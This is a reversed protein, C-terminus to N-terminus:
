ITKYKVLFKWLYSKFCSIWLTKFSWIFVKYKLYLIANEKGCWCLLKFEIIQQVTEFKYKALCKWVFNGAKYVEQEVSAGKLQVNNVFLPCCIPLGVYLVPQTSRSCQHIFRQNGPGFFPSWSPHFRFISGKIKMNSDLHHFSGISSLFHGETFKTLLWFRLGVGRHNSYNHLTIDIATNLYM